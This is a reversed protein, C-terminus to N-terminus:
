ENTLIPVLIETVFEYMDDTSIRDLTDMDSHCLKWSSNDLFGSKSVLNSEGELLLPLPNIVTSDIGAKILPICDSGPVPSVVADFYKLIHDNILGGHHGVLINKGGRGSLELNLVWEIEGFNGEKIMEALKKAGVLGIEEGDTIVVNVEPCAYKLAIANIVSASNDNANDSNPNSVDHHAIVMRRSDGRLIINYFPIDLSYRHFKEIEYPIEFKELLSIIFKVRPTPEDTNKFADGLNRVKCFDGICEIIERPDKNIQKM